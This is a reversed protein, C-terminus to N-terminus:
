GSSSSPRRSGAWVRRSRSSRSCTRSNSSTGPRSDPRRWRPLSTGRSRSRASMWGHPLSKKRTVSSSHISPATGSATERQVTILARREVTSLREDHELAALQAELVATSLGESARRAAAAPNNLEHALGASLKGLAALKEQQRFARQTFRMRRALGSIFVDAAEPVEVAVRRFTDSDIELVRSPEAARARHISTKGTLVALGGTFEGTGHTDLSVEETGELRSINVEGELVVYFSDVTATEDFLLDGTRLSLERGYPMLAEVQQATFGQEAREDRLPRMM